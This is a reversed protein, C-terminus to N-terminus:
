APASRRARADRRHRAAAELVAALRPAVADYSFREVCRRRAALGRRAAADRDAFVQEIARAIEAPSSPPVLWADDGLLEPIDGVRTAVIPRAMAMADTLKIPFQARSAATDRQPVVVVDAAAVVAPMEHAAFRGLRIVRGPSRRQLAGALEDGADRGGVLALRLDDWGLREVAELADDVGKHPRVTGAFMVVRFRDLGLARRSAAADVRAPDFLDTDRASPLYTARYREVLFRTNATVADARHLHGEM